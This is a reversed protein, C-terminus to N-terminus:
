DRRSGRKKRNMVALDDAFLLDWIEERRLERILEDVIIAFM